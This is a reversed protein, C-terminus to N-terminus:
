AELRGAARVLGALLGVDSDTEPHWQVAVCFREGAAEMAETTGDAARASAVFGPHSRVSQHHHCSVELTEGVLGAVRSGPETTVRITGYVDGGPSHEEHGVLDPTHQDLVGGAHVAMVQMGRCVGLVPLGRAAAATLLAAEWADRDPRWGATRPHPEADYRAPDVDAGGSIVLGDLRAVVVDAAGPEGVPPLLVPIGGTATVAEAYETPLLDARQHWVGYAAQERYTTLGIVPAGM